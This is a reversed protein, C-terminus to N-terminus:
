NQNNNQFRIPILSNLNTLELAEAWMKNFEEARRKKNEIRFDNAAYDLKELTIAKANPEMVEMARRLIIGIERGTFGSLRDKFKSFDVEKSFKAGLTNAQAKLIEICEDGIPVPFPIVKDFRTRMASDLGKANNSACIWIIKGRNEDNGMEELLRGFIRQNVGSDGSYGERNGFAQDIEDVFICIPAISKIFNLLRDLNRESEGVWQSRINRMVVFNMSSEEAFAKSIYTKGVGPPGLLLIAKPIVNIKGDKINNSIERLCNKAEKLGGIDNFGHEPQVFELVGSSESFIIERKADKILKWSIKEKRSNTLGILKIFTRNGFGTSNQALGELTVDEELPISKTKEYHNLIELREREDPLPIDVLCTQSSTNYLIPPIKGLNDALLIILHGENGIKQTKGWRHVTEILASKQYDNVESNISSLPIIHDFYEILIAVKLDKQFLLSNFYEFVPITSQGGKHQPPMKALVESGKETSVLTTIGSSISYKLILDFNTLKRIQEFLYEGLEFLRGKDTSEGPQFVYDYINNYIIFQHAIEAQYIERIESFWKKEEEM